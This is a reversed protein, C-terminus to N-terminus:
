IKISDWLKFWKKMRKWLRQWLRVGYWLGMVLSQRHVQRSGTGAYSSAGAYAGSGQDSGSASGSGARARSGCSTGSGDPNLSLEVVLGGDRGPILGVNSQVTLDEMICAFVLAASIIMVFSRCNGMM